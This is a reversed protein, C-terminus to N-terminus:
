VTNFLALYIPAIEDMTAKFLKLLVSAATKEYLSHKRLAKGKMLKFFGTPIGDVGSCKGVSLDAISRLVEDLTFPENLVNESPDIYNDSPQDNAAANEDYLLVTRCLISVV